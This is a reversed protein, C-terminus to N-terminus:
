CGAAHPVRTFNEPAVVEGMLDVRLQRQPLREPQKMVEGFSAGGAHVEIEAGGGADVLPERPLHSAAVAIREFGTAPRLRLSTSSVVPKRMLKARYDGPGRGSRPDIVYYTASNVGM